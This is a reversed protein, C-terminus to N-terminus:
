SISPMRTPLKRSLVDKAARLRAMGNTMMLKARDSRAPTPEDTGM